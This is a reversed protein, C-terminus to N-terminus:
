DHLKITTKGSLMAQAIQRLSTYTTALLKVVRVTTAIHANSLKILQSANATAINNDVPSLDCKHIAAEVLKINNALVKDIKDAGTIGTLINAVTFELGNKMYGHDISDLPRNVEQIYTDYESKERVSDSLYDKDETKLKEAYTYLIKSSKECLHLLNHKTHAYLVGGWDIFGDVSIKQDPSKKKLQKIIELTDEKKKKFVKNVLNKFWAMVKKIMEKARNILKNLFEKKDKFNIAEEFYSGIVIIECQEHIIDEIYM